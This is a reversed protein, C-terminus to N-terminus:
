CGRSPGRTSVREATSKRGLRRKTACKVRLWMRAGISGGVNVQAMRDRSDTSYSWLLASCGARGKRQVVGFGVGKLEVLRARGGAGRGGHVYRAFCQSALRVRSVFRVAADQALGRGRIRRAQSVFSSASRRIRLLREPGGGCM